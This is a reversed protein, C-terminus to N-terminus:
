QEESEIEDAEDKVVTLQLSTYSRRVILDGDHKLVTSMFVRLDVEPGVIV